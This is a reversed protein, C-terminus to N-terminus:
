DSRGHRTTPVTAHEVLEERLVVIEPPAEIGIKVQNGKVGVVTVLIEDGIALAEGERRTLILM